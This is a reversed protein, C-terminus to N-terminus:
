RMRQLAQWVGGVLIACRGSTRRHGRVASVRLGDVLARGEIGEWAGKHVAPHERREVSSKLLPKVERPSEPRLATTWELCPSRLWGILAGRSLFDTDGSKGEGTLTGAVIM